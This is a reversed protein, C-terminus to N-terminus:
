YALAPLASIAIPTITQVYPLLEVSLHYQSPGLTLVLITSLAGIAVAARTGITAFKRFPWLGMAVGLGLLASCLLTFGIADLPDAWSLWPLDSQPDPAETITQYSILAVLLVFPVAAAALARYIVTLTSM